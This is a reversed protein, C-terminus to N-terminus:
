TNHNDKEYEHIITTNYYQLITNNHCNTNSKPIGQNFVEKEKITLQYINSIKM